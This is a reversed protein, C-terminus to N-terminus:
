KRNLQSGRDNEVIGVPVTLEETTGRQRITIRTKVYSNSPALPKALRITVRHVKREGSGGEEHLILPIRSERETTLDIAGSPTGCVVLLSALERGSPDLEIASPFARPRSTMQGMVRLSLKDDLDWPGKATLLGTFSDSPPREKLEVRYMWKRVFTGPQRYPKTDVGTLTAKLFPLDLCVEPPAGQEGNEITHVAIDRSMGRSDDGSFVVEGEILHLFPPKRNGVLKLTLPVDPKLPSDTRVDIHVFKEGVSITMASVDVVAFQGPAVVEPHVVPKACGCGSKISVIGIRVPLGGINQLEFQVKASASGRTWSNRPGGLRSQQEERRALRPVKRADHNLLRSQWRRPRGSASRDVDKCPSQGINSSSDPRTTEM